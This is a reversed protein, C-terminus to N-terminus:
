GRGRARGYSSSRIAKAGAAEKSPGAPERSDASISATPRGGGLLDGLARYGPGDFARFMLGAGGRGVWVVVAQLRYAVTALGKSPKVTVDIPTNIQLTVPATEIFMGGPSVDRVTGRVLGLPPYQLIAEMDTVNRRSWRHEM